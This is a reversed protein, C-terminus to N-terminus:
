AACGGLKLLLTELHPLAGCNKKWYAPSDSIGAGSLAALAQELTAAAPGAASIKRAASILLKDLYRVRGANKEWYEPCDLVGLLHLKRVAATVTESLMLVDGAHILGTDAIGNLKGLAEVTTGFRRAIAWLTDGAQVTYVAPAATSDDPYVPAAFGRICANDTSFRRSVVRDDVNGEVTTIVGGACATVIGVHDAASSRDWSFFILDGPKPTYGRERWVGRSKLWNMCATCSCFDPIVSDSVGSKRLIYTCFCACWAVEMGLRNGPNRSNFFSIYRDDGTPESVGLEGAALTVIRERTTM